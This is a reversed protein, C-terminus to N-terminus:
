GAHMRVRLCQIVIRKSSCCIDRGRSGAATNGFRLLLFETCLAHCLWFQRTCLAYCRECVRLRKGRPTRRTTHLCPRLRIGPGFYTTPGRGMQHTTRGLRAGRRNRYLIRQVKGAVEPPHNGVQAELFAVFLRGFAMCSHLICLFVRNRAIVLQLEGTGGVADLSKRTVQYRRYHPADSQMTRRAAVGNWQKATIDRVAENFISGVKPAVSIGLLGRLWPHDGGLLVAAPM